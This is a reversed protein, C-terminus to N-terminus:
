ALVDVALTDAEILISLRTGQYNVGHLGISGTDDPLPPPRLDLRDSRVRLGGYGYLVSQLFGGAGTIFNVTGGGPTETWVNFPAQVNAYGRIFNSQAKEYDGAELWGVASLWAFHCGGAQDEHSSHIGQVGM